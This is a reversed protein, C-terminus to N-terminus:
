KKLTAKRCYSLAKFQSPMKETKVKIAQAYNNSDNLAEFLKM